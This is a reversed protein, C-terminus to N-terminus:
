RRSRGRRHTVRPARARSAECPSPARSGCAGDSTPDSVLGLEACRADTLCVYLAGGTHSSFARLSEASVFQAACM